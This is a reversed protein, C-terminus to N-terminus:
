GDILIVDTIPVGALDAEAQYLKHRSKLSEGKKSTLLIRGFGQSPLRAILSSPDDTLFLSVEAKYSGDNVFTHGSREAASRITEM